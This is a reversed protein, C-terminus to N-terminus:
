KISRCGVLCTRLKTVISFMQKVSQIVSLSVNLIYKKVPELAVHTKVSGFLYLWLCCCRIIKPQETFVLGIFFHEFITKLNGNLVYIQETFSLVNM